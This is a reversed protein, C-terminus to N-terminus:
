SKIIVSDAILKLLERLFEKDEGSDMCESDAYWQETGTERYIGYGGFGIDSDWEIRIGEFKENSFPVMSHVSLNIERVKKKRM